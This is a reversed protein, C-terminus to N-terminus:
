KWNVTAFGNGPMDFQLLKDGISVITPKGAGSNYMIVVVTGDPNKFALADGGTTGIRTAGPDVFQSAHRFVYYAPTIILANNNSTDVVMLANQPWPRVPDINWGKPDLVLNWAMYSNVGAQIWDRILGWSEVGYAYDNAPHDPNFADTEWPYNGCRHETQMSPVDLSEMGAIDDMTNWQLGVGKIYKMANADAMMATMIAGDSPVDAMTSMWIDVALCRSALTPGLYDRVYKTFVSPSWLCSPYRTAYSPENQVHLAEITIGENQYAEIFRANYLAYAKLNDNNDMMNGGDTSNNDKMWTPPTWPSAWLHMDPRVALAAKVYPIIYQYDRDISFHSM